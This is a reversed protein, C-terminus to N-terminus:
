PPVLTFGLYLPYLLYQSFCLKMPYRSHEGAVLNTGVHGPCATVRAGGVGSSARTQTRGDTEYSSGPARLYLLSPAAGDGSMPM